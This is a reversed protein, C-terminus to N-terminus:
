RTLTIVLTAPEEVDNEDFDFSDDGTLTMTDGDRSITFTEPDDDVPTITLVDGSVSYTGIEVEPDEGPFSSTFVYGADANLVLTITGGEAVFDVSVTPDAVSTVVAETAEWTGALDDPEVGTSDSCASLVLLAMASTTLHRLKM